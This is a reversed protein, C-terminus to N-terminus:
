LPKVLLPYYGASTKHESREVKFSIPLWGRDSAIAVRKVINEAGTSVVIREGSDLRTVDLLLYGALGDEQYESPRPVAGEVQLPVGLLEDLSVTAGAAILAEPSTAELMAQDIRRSVADNDVDPFDGHGLVALLTPGADRLAIPAASSDESKPM